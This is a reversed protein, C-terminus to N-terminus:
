AEYADVLKNHNDCIAYFSYIPVFIILWLVFPSATPALAVGKATALAVQQKMFLFYWVLPFIGCTVFSLFFVGIFNMIKKEGIKEAMENQQKTLKYWFFLQYIGLTVVSLLLSTIWNFRKM